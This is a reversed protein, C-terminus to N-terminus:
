ASFSSCYFGGHVVFTFGKGRGAFLLGVAFRKILTLELCLDYFYSAMESIHGM